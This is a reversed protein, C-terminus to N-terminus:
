FIVFSHVKKFPHNHNYHDVLTHFPTRGQGDCMAFLGENDESCWEVAKIIFEECLQYHKCAYHFRLISFRLSSKDEFNYDVDALFGATWESNWGEQILNAVEGLLLYELLLSELLETDGSKFVGEESLSGLLRPYIGEGDVTTGPVHEGAEGLLRKIEVSSKFKEALDQASRVSRLNKKTKVYSLGLKAYNSPSSLKHFESGADYHRHAIQEWTLESPFYSERPWSIRDGGLGFARVVMKVLKEDNKMIAVDLVSLGNTSCTQLLFRSNCSLLRQLMSCDGEALATDWETGQYAEFMGGYKEKERPEMGVYLMYQSISTNGIIDNAMEFATLGSRDDEARTFDYAVNSLYVDRRRSRDIGENGYVDYFEEMPKLNESWPYMECILDILQKALRFCGQMAAVHLATRFGEGTKCCLPVCLADGGEAHVSQLQTMLSVCDRVEIAKFWAGGYKAEVYLLSEGDGLKKLVERDVSSSEVHEGVKLLLGKIEVSSGCEEALHVASTVPGPSRGTEANGVGLTALNKL